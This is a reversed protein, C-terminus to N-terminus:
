PQEQSSPNTPPNLSDILRIYDFLVAAGVGKLEGVFHHVVPYQLLAKELVDEGPDKELLAEVESPLDAVRLAAEAVCGFVQTLPHSEGLGEKLIKHYREWGHSVYKSSAVLRGADKLALVKPHTALRDVRQQYAQTFHVGDEWPQKKIPRIGYLVPQPEELFRCLESLAAFRRGLNDVDPLYGKLVCYISGSPPTGCERWDDTRRRSYWRVPSYEFFGRKVPPRGKPDTQYVRSSIREIPIGEIGRRKTWDVLFREVEEVSRGDYPTVYLISEQRCYGVVPKKNDRIYIRTWANVPVKDPHESEFREYGKKGYLLHSCPVPVPPHVRPVGASTLVPQGQEDLVPVSEAITFWASPIAPPASAFNFQRFLDAQKLCRAWGTVGELQSSVAEQCEQEFQAFKAQIAAVTRKSYDLMERNAAIDLEGIDFYLGGGRAALSPFRVHSSNIPYSLCGMVAYFSGPTTNLWGSKQRFTGKEPCPVVTINVDPTPIFFKFLDPARRQFAHIDEPNVPIQVEIGTETTPGTFLRFVQGEDNEDLVANYVNMEGQHHSVITYSDGYAHGSKAGIGYSGVELNSQDKSTAGYNFLREMAAEHSLGRGFDRVIFTPNLTTPLVVKIPVDPIGAARHEDWANAAYERLIALIKDTYVTSRVLRAMRAMDCARITMKTSESQSSTVERPEALNLIM